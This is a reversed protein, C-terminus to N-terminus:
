MQGPATSFFIICHQIAELLVFREPFINACYFSEFSLSTIKYLNRHQFLNRKYVRTYMEKSLRQLHINRPKNCKYFINTNVASVSIFTTFKFLFSNFATYVLHQSNGSHTICVIWFVSAILPFENKIEFRFRVCM